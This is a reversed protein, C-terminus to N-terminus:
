APRPGTPTSLCLSFFDGVDGGTSVSSIQTLGPPLEVNKLSPGVTSPTSTVSEAVDRLAKEGVVAKSGAVTIWQCPTLEWNLELLNPDGPVVRSRRLAAPKGGVTTATGGAAPKKDPMSVSIFKYNGRASTSPTPAM